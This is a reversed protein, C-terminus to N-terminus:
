YINKFTIKEKSLDYTLNRNRTFIELLNSFDKNENEQIVFKTISEQRELSINEKFIIKM